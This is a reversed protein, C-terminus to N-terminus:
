KNCSIIKNIIQEIGKKTKLEHEWVRIVIIGSMKLLRNTRKDRKKNNSIKAKWFENRTKPIHGCKNCGHWFCGDVFIAIKRKTFYLDPKGILDKPHLVWGSINKRVLAMKLRLETTKNNKGRISSMTKSVKSNVNIFKGNKLYKTLKKEM